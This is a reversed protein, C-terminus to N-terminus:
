IGKVQEAIRVGAMSEEIDLGTFGEEGGVKEKMRQAHICSEVGCVCRLWPRADWYGRGYCVTVEAGKSIDRQAQLVEIRVRGVRRLRFHTCPECSHNVFRTWSGKRSADITVDEELQDDWPFTSLHTPSGSLPPRPIGPIDYICGIELDLAYDTNDWTQSYANPKLEGAYWGLVDGEKFPTRAFVGIGKDKTERLEFHEEWNATATQWDQWSHTCTWDSCVAAIYCGRGACFVKKPANVPFLDHASQPPWPNGTPWSRPYQINAFTASDFIYDNIQECATHIGKSGDLCTYRFYKAEEMATSNNPHFSSIARKFDFLPPPFPAPTDSLCLGNSQLCVVEM